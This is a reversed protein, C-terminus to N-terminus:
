HLFVKTNTSFPYVHRFNQAPNIQSNVIMLFVIFGQSPCFFVALSACVVIFFRMRCFLLSRFPLKYYFHGEDAPIQQSPIWRKSFHPKM